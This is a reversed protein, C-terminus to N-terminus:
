VTNVRKHTEIFADLDKLDLQIRGHEESQVFPLKGDAILQRLKWQSLSLYEAADRLRLMRRRAFGNQNQDQSM